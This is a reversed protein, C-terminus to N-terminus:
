PATGCIPHAATAGKPGLPNRDEDSAFAFALAAIDRKKAAEDFLCAESHMKVRDDQLWTAAIGKGKDLACHKPKRIAPALTQRAVRRLTAQGQGKWM